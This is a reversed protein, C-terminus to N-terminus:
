DQQLLLRDINKGEPGSDSPRGLGGIRTSELRTRLEYAYTRGAWGNPINFPKAEDM